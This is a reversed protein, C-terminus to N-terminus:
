KNYNFLKNGSGFEKKTAERIEKGSLGEEKLGKKFERKARINNLKDVIDDSEVNASLTDSLWNDDGAVPQGEKDYEKALSYFRGGKQPLYDTIMFGQLNVDIRKPVQMNTPDKEINIEWTTDSDAYTFFCSTLAIPQHFFLDGLTLRLYPAKMAITDNSYEPATYGALANLKRWIPKLEDRHQAYVTFNLDLTRSFGQYVYNPDARGIYQIPNWAGSFSDTLSSIVARFVIVDDTATEAGPHLSPGTFYFKILDETQGIGLKEGVSAGLIEVNNLVKNLGGEPKWRYISNKGRQGFDIVTVKDGTFPKVTEAPNNTLAWEGEQKTFGFNEEANFVKKINFNVNKWRTAVESRATWDLGPESFSKPFGYTQELNFVPYAGGLGASSALAYGAATASGRAAAATGHIAVESTLRSRFDQFPKGIYDAGLASFSLEVPKLETFPLTEYKGRKDVFTTLAPIGLIASAGSILRNNVGASIEDLVKNSFSSDFLKAGTEPTSINNKNLIINNGYKNNSYYENTVDGSLGILPGLTGSTQTTDPNSMVPIPGRGMGSQSTDPTSMIRKPTGIQSQSLDPNDMLNMSNGSQSQNLDPSSMTNMSNGSENQSLDPSSMTNMSNGSENQSLDPNNMPSMVIATSSQSTDISYIKSVFSTSSQDTNISYPKFLKLTNQQDINVSYIIGPSKISSQSLDITYKNPKTNSDGTLNISDPSDSSRALSFNTKLGGNQNPTYQKNIDYLNAM